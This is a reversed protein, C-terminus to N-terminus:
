ETISYNSWTFQVCKKPRSILHHDLKIKFSTQHKWKFCAPKTHGNRAPWIGFPKTASSLLLEHQFTERQCTKRSWDGHKAWGTLGWWNGHIWTFRHLHIYIYINNYIIIINYIYLELDSWKLGSWDGNRFHKELSCRSFTTNLCKINVRGRFLPNKLVVRLRIWSFVCVMRGVNWGRLVM